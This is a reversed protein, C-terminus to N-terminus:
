MQDAAEKTMVAWAAMETVYYKFNSEHEDKLAALAEKAYFQTVNLAQWFDKEGSIIENM